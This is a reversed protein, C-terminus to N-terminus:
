ENRLALVPDIRTARRAPLYSAAIASAGLLVVVGGYAIPDLPSLGYLSGRLVQSAALAGALGAALGVTLARSHGSLVLRVVALSPAGLAMRIGIEKTRQRVMYAFVGFMGITALTLGLVGLISAALPAFNLQALRNEFRDTLPAVDVRARPEVNSILAALSTWAAPQRARFMLPPFLESLVRAGMPRFFLPEIENLGSMYADRVLGVIELSEQGSVFTRGVPNQGPWYQRALTENVIAVPRGDENEQFDRGALIPLGLVSFYGPTVTIFQVIKTLNESQGDLRVGTQFHLDALPEHGVFAWSQLGANRVATRLDNLLAAARTNDYAFAPLEIRVVGIGEVNFGLDLEHAQAVGRLLLGASTLLVVTVAVQTALLVTRLPFRSRLAPTGDKLASAVDMRTVHLAPALACAVCTVVALAVAYGIVLADPAIEFPAPQNAVRELVFPPLWTALALGAAAAVSALVLGETLLQRVIRSRSAGISLRVSIEAMRAAARALLLNGVNACAILLLLTIGTFLVGIIALAEPKANRGSLFQTGGILVTRPDQGVSARFRQSLVQLEARAESRTIGDALRATVNVCCDQWRDLLSALYPDNARLTPLSSMPLWVRNASGEPGTFEPSTIGVVTHPIGDIRIQRGVIAVGGFHSRWLQYSLVAVQAPSDRRDESALFGRGHEMRIGLVDFYNGTVVYAPTTRGVRDSELSVSFARHAVLGEVTRSGDALFRFEPYSFGIAGGRGLASEASVSVVRAPDGIGAMPRLALGAFVTFLSTNLGIAVGLAAIAVATFGPQRRLSRLAYVVDQWVSELWPGIWIARADERARTVNGLAARAALRAQDASLGTRQLEQEKMARHFQLEEELDADLKRVRVMAWLRRLLHM